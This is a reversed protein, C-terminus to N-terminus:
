PAQFDSRFRRWRGHPSASRLQANRSSVVPPIPNTFSRRGGHSPWRRRDEKQIALRLWQGMPAPRREVPDTAKVEHETLVSPLDVPLRFVGMSSDEVAVLDFTRAKTLGDLTQQVAPDAFWVTRWPHRGRAWTAALRLRRRQRALGAPRRRDVVHVDLGSRRLADVAEVEGFEDGVATVLTV